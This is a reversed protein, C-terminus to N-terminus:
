LNLKTKMIITVTYNHRNNTQANLCTAYLTM